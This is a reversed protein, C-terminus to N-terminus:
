PRRNRFVASARLKPGFNEEMAAEFLRVLRANDTLYRFKELNITGAYNVYPRKLKRADPAPAKAVLGEDVLQQFAAKMEDPEFMVSDSVLDNWRPNRYDQSFPDAIQPSPGTKMELRGSGAFSLRVPYPFREDGPAPEYAVELWDLGSGKVAFQRHRLRGESDVSACGAAALLAPAAFALVRLGKKARRFLKFLGFLLVIKLLKTKM